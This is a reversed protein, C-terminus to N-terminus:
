SDKAKLRLAAHMQFNSRNGGPRNRYYIHRFRLLKESEPLYGDNVLEFEYRKGARTEGKGKNDPKSLVKLTKFDLKVWSSKTESWISLDLDELEKRIFFQIRIKDVQSDEPLTGEPYKFRHFIGRRETVGAQTKKESLKQDRRAKLAAGYPVRRKFNIEVPSVAVSTWSSLALNEDTQIGAAHTSEDLKAFLFAQRRKEVKTRYQSKVLGQVLLSYLDKSPMDIDGIVFKELGQQREGAEIKDIIVHGLEAGSRTMVPYILVLDKLTGITNNRIELDINDDNYQVIAEIKPRRRRTSEISVYRTGWMALKLPQISLNRRSDLATFSRDGTATNPTGRRRRRPVVTFAQAHARKVQISHQEKGGSFVLMDSTVLTKESDPFSEILTVGFFASDSEKLILKYFPTLASFILIVVPVWFWAMLGKKEKRLWFFVVPGAVFAYILLAMFAPAIQAQSSQITTLVPFLLDSRSTMDPYNTLLNEIFDNGGPWHLVPAKWLDFALLTVRGLGYPRVMVLPGDDNELIVRQNEVAKLRALIVSKKGLAQYEPNNLVELSGRRPAASAPISEFIEPFAQKLKSSHLKDARDGISIVLHGGRAVWDSLAQARLEDFQAGVDGMLIAQIGTLSLASSPMEPAALFCQVWKGQHFSQSGDDGIQVVNPSLESLDFPPSKNKDVILLVPTRTLGPITLEEQYLTEDKDTDIRITIGSFRIKRAPVLTELRTVVQSQLATNFSCIPEGTPQSVYIVANTSDGNNRVKLVLPTFGRRPIIGGHGPDPEVVFRPPEEPKSEEQAWASQLNFFPLLLLLLAAPQVARSLIAQREKAAAEAEETWQSKLRKALVLAIVFIILSLIAFCIFFTLSQPIHDHYYPQGDKVTTFRIEKGPKLLSYAAIFPSLDIIWSAGEGAGNFYFYIVWVFPLINLASMALIAQGSASFPNNTIMAFFVCLAFCFIAYEVILGYLPVLTDMPFLHVPYSKLWISCQVLLVPFVLGLAFVIYLALSRTIKWAGLKFLYRRDRLASRAQAGLFAMLLLSVGTFLLYSYVFRKETGGWGKPLAQPWLAGLFAFHATFIFLTSFVVRIVPSWNKLTIPSNEYLFRMQLTRLLTSTLLRQGKIVEGKRGVAVTDFSNMGPTLEFDPGVLVYGLSFLSVFIYIGMSILFCPLENGFLTPASITGLGLIKLFPALEVSVHRIPSFAGFFPPAKSSFGSAVTSLSAVLGFLIPIGTDDMAVCSFLTVSALAIMFFFMVIYFQFVMFLTAGNMIVTLIFFPLASLLTLGFFALCVIMRGGLLRIPSIGTSVVQDFCQEKRESFFTGFFSMPVLAAIGVAEILAFALFAAKAFSVNESQFALRGRSFAQQVVVFVVMLLLINLFVARGLRKEGFTSRLAKGIAPHDFFWSQAYHEDRYVSEDDSVPPAPPTDAATEPAVADTM